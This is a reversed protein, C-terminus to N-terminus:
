KNGEKLLIKRGWSSAPMLEEKARKELKEKEELTLMIVLRETRKNM